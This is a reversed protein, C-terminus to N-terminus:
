KKIKDKLLDILKRLQTASLQHIHASNASIGFTKQLWKYAAQRVARKIELPGRIDKWLSDFFIHAEIKLTKLKLEKPTLSEKIKQNLM